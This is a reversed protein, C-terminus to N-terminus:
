PVDDLTGDATCSFAAYRGYRGRVRDSVVELMNVKQPYRGQVRTGELRKALMQHLYLHVDVLYGLEDGLAPRVDCSEFLSMREDRSAPKNSASSLIVTCLEHRRTLLTVTRLFQSLLAQGHVYNNKIIPQFLQSINDIILIGGPPTTSLADVPSAETAAQNLKPPSDLMDDEEDSDEITSKPVAAQQPATAAAGDVKAREEVEALAEVAGVNDFVKTIKVRDLVELTEQESADKMSAQLVQYLRRVDFSMTSDIVTASARSSTRIHSSVLGQILEKTGADASSTICHVVGYDFGGELATDIAKVGTTLHTQTLDEDFYDEANQDKNTSPQWLDFALKPPAIVAM